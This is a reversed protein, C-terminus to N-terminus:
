YAVAPGYFVESNRVVKAQVRNAHPNDVGPTYADCLTNSCGTYQYASKGDRGGCQYLTGNSANRWILAVGSTASGSKYLKAWAYWVGNVKKDNVQMYATNNIKARTGSVLHSGSGPNKLWSGCWLPAASAPAALATMGGAVTGVAVVAAAIRRSNM